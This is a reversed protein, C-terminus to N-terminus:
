SNLWDDFTKLPKLNNTIDLGQGNDAFDLYIQYEDQLKGRTQTRHDEKYTYRM